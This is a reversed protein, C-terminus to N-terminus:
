AGGLLRPRRADLAGRLAARAVLGEEESLPQGGTHRAVAPDAWMAACDALDAAAHGRLTLRETDLDPAAHTSSYRM